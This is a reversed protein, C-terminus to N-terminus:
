LPTTGNAIVGKSQLFEAFQKLTIAEEPSPCYKRGKRHVYRDIIELTLENANVGHRKLWCSFKFIARIKWRGTSRAFGQSYIHASYSNLYKELPHLHYKSLTPQDLYFHKM